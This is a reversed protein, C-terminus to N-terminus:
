VRVFELGYGLLPITFGTAMGSTANLAFYVWQGDFASLEGSLCDLIGQPVYLQMAGEAFYSLGVDLVIVSGQLIVLAMFRGYPTNALLIQAILSGESATNHSLASHHTLLSGFLLSSFMSSFQHSKCKYMGEYVELRPPLPISPQLPKLANVFAPILIDYAVKSYAFENAQGNWLMTLGLQLEPIM